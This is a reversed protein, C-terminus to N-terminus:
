GSVADSVRAGFAFVKLWHASKAQLGADHGVIKKTYWDLVLVVYVWGIPEVMVKTM